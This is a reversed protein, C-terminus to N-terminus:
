RERERERFFEVIHMNSLVLLHSLLHAWYLNGILKEFDNFEIQKFKEKRQRKKVSESQNSQIWYPLLMMFRLRILWYVLWIFCCRSYIHTHTHSDIKTNRYRKPQLSFLFDCLWQQQHTHARQLKCNMVNQTSPFLTLSKDPFIFIRMIKKQKKKRRKQFKIPFQSWNLISVVPSKSM